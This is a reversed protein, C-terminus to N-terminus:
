SKPKSKASQDSLMANQQAIVQRLQSLENNLKDFTEQNMQPPPPPAKFVPKAPIEPHADDVGSIEVPGAIRSVQASGDRVGLFDSAQNDSEACVFATATEGDSNFYNVRYVNRIVPANKTAGDSKSVM